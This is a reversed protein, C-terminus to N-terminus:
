PEGAPMLIYGDINERAQHYGKYMRSKQNEKGFSIKRTMPIANNGDRLLIILMKRLAALLRRVFFALSGNGRSSWSGDDREHDYRRFDDLGEWAQVSETIRYGCSYFRTWIDHREQLCCMQVDTVM